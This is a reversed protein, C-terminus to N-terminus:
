KKVSVLVREHLTFYRGPSIERVIDKETHRRESEILEIDFLIEKVLCKKASSLLHHSDPM